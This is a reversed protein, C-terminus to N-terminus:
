DKATATIQAEATGGAIQASATQPGPTGVTWTTKAEGHSNTTAETPDFSGGLASTVTFEVTVGEVANGDADKVIVAVPKDLNTNEKGDQADGSVVEITQATRQGCCREVEAALCIIAEFLRDNSLVTRRYSMDAAVDTGAAVDELTVNALVVCDEDPTACSFLPALEPRSYADAGFGTAHAGLFRNIPGGGGGSPKGFWGALWRCVLRIDPYPFPPPGDHILVKYRERVAGAACGERVDCDDVLVPSPDTDCEHYALCITVESAAATGAPRGCGDTLQSPDDICIQETVVIERGCGDIAFGPAICIAKGDTGPTIELGCVVGFGVTLRNLRRRHDVFYAQEMELHRRDLMKGYFYRNRVPATMPPDAVVIAGGTTSSSGHVHVVPM